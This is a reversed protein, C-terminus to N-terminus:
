ALGAQIYLTGQVHFVLRLIHMSFHTCMFDDDQQKYTSGKPTEDKSDPQVAIDHHTAGWFTNPQVKLYM